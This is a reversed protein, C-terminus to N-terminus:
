SILIDYGLIFRGTKNIGDKMCQRYTAKPLSKEQEMRQVFMDNRINRYELIRINMCFCLKEIAEKRLNASDKQFSDKFNDSMGMQTSSM